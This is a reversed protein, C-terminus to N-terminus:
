QPGLLGFVAGQPDKATIIWAGGPIQLPGLVVSGGRAEVRTKAQTISEVNFYYLWAPHPIPSNMMGGLDDGAGANFMHYTGMSGMDMSSSNVWGLHKGYFALAAVSDTTHLENWGCQGPKRGFSTMAGGHTPHMVYFAAGQPDAVLAIRGINALTTPRMMVAGGDAVVADVTDDVDRVQVYGLWCCPVGRSALESPMPMFGGLVIDGRAWMRYEFGASASPIASYGVVDGYFAQAAELDSTLLEYWIFEGIM